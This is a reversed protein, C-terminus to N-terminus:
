AAPETPELSFFRRTNQATRAALEDFTIRRLDALFQATHILHAPENPRINRVPVPSLYPSDTEIMLQDIPYAASIRQLELASKFTVIGTFSIRWGRDAIESAQERTGSFCHFVVRRGAFGHETLISVVDNHAERCHIVVPLNTTAALALQKAFVEKQSDRDAFDYHYDLGMEGLAVVSPDGTLQEYPPWDGDSVKAAEHPHFGVIASVRTDRHALDIVRRDDLLDTGVCLVHGVGASSARDHIEGVRPALEGFTLHAHSDILSM